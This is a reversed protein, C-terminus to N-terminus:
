KKVDEIKIGISSSLKVWLDIFDELMIGRPIKSLDLTIKPVYKEELNGM